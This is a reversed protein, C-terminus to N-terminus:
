ILEHMNNEYIHIWEDSIYYLDREYMNKVALNYSQVINAVSDLSLAKLNESDPFCKDFNFYNYYFSKNLLYRSQNILSLYKGITEVLKIKIKQTIKM